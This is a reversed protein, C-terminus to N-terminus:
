RALLMRELRLVYREWRDAGVEDIAELLAESPPVDCRLQAMTWRHLAVMEVFERFTM